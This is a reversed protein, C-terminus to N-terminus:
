LNYRSFFEGSKLEREAYQRSSYYGSMRCIPGCKNCWQGIYYGAHSHCVKVPLKAGCDPCKEVKDAEGPLAM